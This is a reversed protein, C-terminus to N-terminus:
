GSPAVVNSGPKHMVIASRWTVVDPPLARRSIDLPSPRDVIGRNM